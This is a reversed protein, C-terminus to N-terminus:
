PHTAGKVFLQQQGAYLKGVENGWADWGPATHRAFLEIRPLNGMLKVIRARTEAPKRSHERVPAYIIQRVNASVRKPKGRVALLCLEANSRTWWGMGLFEDIAFVEDPLMVLQKPNTRKNTKVWVFACTKYEFGWATIVKPAEFLLMPMTAWLFLTCNKATISAVPLACIDDVDMTPYHSEAGGGQSLSKDKYRWPPDAYIINYKKNPFPRM